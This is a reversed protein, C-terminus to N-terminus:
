NLLGLAEEASHVPLKCTKNYCVYFTDKGNIATRGEFLPLSSQISTAMVLKDIRHNRQLTLGAELYGNGIVAIEAVPIALLCLLNCWNYLYEPERKVLQQIGAMMNVAVSSYERNDLMMGLNFFNMATVSNSGPIVNDFIEKKRAVLAGSGSDTYFFVKEKEDYFNKLVYDSLKGAKELWGENFTVNYLGTYAEIMHAYDDLYGPIATEGGNILRHLNGDPGSHDSVLEATRKALDLYDREGFALYADALARIMLGNWAVIMKNDLGPRVRKKRAELLTNKAKGLLARLGTPDINHTRCFEEDDSGAALINRGPEWNGTETVQWYSKLLGADDGALDDLEKAKWTYFKGEEGESDADLASYFGGSDDTM